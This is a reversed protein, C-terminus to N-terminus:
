RDLNTNKKGLIFINVGIIGNKLWFLTTLKALRM